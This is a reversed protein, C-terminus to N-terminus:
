SLPVRSEEDDPEKDDDSDDVDDVFFNTDDNLFALFKLEDDPGCKRLFARVAKVGRDNPDEGVGPFKMLEGPRPSPMLDWGIVCSIIGIILNRERRLALDKTKFKNGKRQPVQILNPNNLARAFRENTETLRIVKLEPPPQGVPSIWSSPKWVAHDKYKQVQIHPTLHDFSIEDNDPM